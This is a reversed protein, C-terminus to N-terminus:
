FEITITTKGTIYLIWQGKDNPVANIPAGNLLANTGSKVGTILLEQEGQKWCTVELEIRDKTEVVKAIQGPAHVIVRHSRFVRYDYLAPKNYFRLANVMVTAPNIAADNRIQARLNFSDPLLGVREKDTEAQWTQQIGSATIGNALKHWNETSDYQAFRYLADAYVLGCWQVPLGMWNPAIWQTAGLVAITSYVGVSDKTPRVLYVFPVGTWAWYKAQELHAPKGTLEYALTYARLLHASALIDPTHLPVEWTQAGRPVTNAFRKTLLDLRELGAAILTQNGCFLANELQVRVVQATLGNADRAFHTRGYDLGNPSKRFPVTGDAEFRTLLRRANTEATVLAPMTAKYVLAAAPSPIHGVNASNLEAPAVAKLASKAADAARERLKADGAYAALYDLLMGADAAPQAPFSGPYAHRFNDGDHIASDLWGSVTLKAYSNWDLTDPKLPFGMGIAVAQKVAPIINDAGVTGIISARFLLPKDPLIAKGRYPLLSDEQRNQGDSGPFLLGMSHGGSGFQRDPSDFVASLDADPKWHLGIINGSKLVAMVPITIKATDPVQRKAGEGVIDAESSSPEDKDLYELGPFIAQTKTGGFTGVGALLTVIPLYLAVRPASVQVTTEVFIANEQSSPAFKQTITWREGDYDNHISTVTLTNGKRRIEALTPDLTQWTLGKEAIYGIMPKTNGMAMPVGGVTVQYQYAQTRSHTLTVRGSTVEYPKDGLAPPTPKEWKPPAFIIRPAFTFAAVTVTDGTTGPPDFRLATAKGLIPLPVQIEQWDAKKPVPFRVSDAENTGKQATAWFIQGMGSSSAKLRITIWLPTNAPYDHPNGGIYPDSGVVAIRMGDPTSELPATDHVATWEKVTESKRFDFQPMSQASVSAAAFLCM